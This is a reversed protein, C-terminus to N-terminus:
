VKRDIKITVVHDASLVKLGNLAALLFFIRVSDRSPVSSYTNEKAIAPVKNSDGVFRAKRTLSGLKIDFIMYTTIEKHGVPITDEETFEFAAMNSTMEKNIVKAYEALQVPFSEKVDSLKCWCNSGDKWSALIRWSRTTPKNSTQGNKATTTANDTSLATCDKEHDILEDLLTFLRADKDVSSYLSEAVINATYEKLSGDPVQLRYLRTDLILNDNRVGIPQNQLDRVRDKVVCRLREDNREIIVENGIYEDPNDADDVFAEPEAMELKLNATRPPQEEFLNGPPEPYHETFFAANDKVKNGIKSEISKDIMEMKQLVYRDRWEFEVLDSGIAWGELAMPQPMEKITGSYVIMGNVAPTCHSIQGTATSWNLRHGEWQCPAGLHGIAGEARNQFPCHPQIFTQHIHNCKVISNWHTKYTRRARQEPAGDSILHEPIGVEHIFVKLGQHAHLKGQVPIFEEYRPTKAFWTDTYWNRRFSQTPLRKMLPLQLNRLAKQTTVKLTQEAKKLSINWTKALREYDMKNPGDITTVTPGWQNRRDLSKREDNEQLCPLSEPTKPTMSSIMHAINGDIAVQCETLMRRTSVQHLRALKYHDQLDQHKVAKKVKDLKSTVNSAIETVATNAYEISADETSIAELSIQDQSDIALEAMRFKLLRPDWPLVDNSATLYDSEELELKKPDDDEKVPQITIVHKSRPSFQQSSEEVSNFNCDRVQNLCILSNKGSGPDTWATACSGIPIRKIPKYSESFPAVDFHATVQDPNLLMMNSGAATTDACSDLECYGKENEGDKGTFFGTTTKRKKSSTGYSSVNQLGRKNKGNARKKHGLRNMFLILCENFNDRYNKSEDIADAKTMTINTDTYAHQMLSLFVNRASGSNYEWGPGKRTTDCLLKWVVNNDEDYQSGSLVGCRENNDSWTPYADKPSRGVIGSRVNDDVYEKEQPSIVYLVPFGESNFRYRLNQWFEEEWERFKSLDKLEPPTAKEQLKESSEMMKIRCQQLKLNYINSMGGRTIENASEQNIGFDMLSNRFALQQRTRSSDDMPEDDDDNDDDGSSEDDGPGPNGQQLVQLEKIKERVQHGIVQKWTSDMDPHTLTQEMM